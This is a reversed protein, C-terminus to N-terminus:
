EEKGSVGRRGSAREGPDGRHRLPGRALIRPPRQLLLPAKQGGRRRRGHLFLFQLQSCRFRLDPDLLSPADDDDDDGDADRGGDLTPKQHRIERKRERSSRDPRRFCHRSRMEIPASSTSGFFFDSSAVKDLANKKKIEKGKEAVHSLIKRVKKNKTEELFARRGERRGSEGTARECRRRPQGQSRHSGRCGCRRPALPASAAAGSRQQRRRRCGRRRRNRNRRQQQAGNGRRSAARHKTTPSRRQRCRGCM